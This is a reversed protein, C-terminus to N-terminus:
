GQLGDDQTLLEVQCLAAYCIIADVFCSADVIGHVIDYLACTLKESYPLVFHSGDM